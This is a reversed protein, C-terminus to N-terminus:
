FKFDLKNNVILFEMIDFDVAEDLDFCIHDMIYIISLSNVSIENKSNFFKNRYIYFSANMDYVRPSSQRTKFSKESKVLSAYGKNNIEVMNFYPNRKAPSVSFINLANKNNILKILAAEIDDINRLPSTVDLDIIFDFKKNYYVEAYNFAHKITDIKGVEDTALYDPRIYKNDTLGYNKCCKSILDCDTSLQIDAKYKEKIKNALDISYHILPTNNIKKINKKPIGKSGGRACITILINM